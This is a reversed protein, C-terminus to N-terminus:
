YDLINNSRVYDSSTLASELDNRFRYIQSREEFSANKTVCDMTQVTGDRWYITASYSTSGEDGEIPVPAIIPKIQDDFGRFPNYSGATYDLCFKDDKKIGHNELVEAVKIMAARKDTDIKGSANNYVVRKIETPKLNAVLGWVLAMLLMAGTVAAAIILILKTTKDMRKRNNKPKAQSKSQKIM